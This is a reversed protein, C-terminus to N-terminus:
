RGGEENGDMYGINQIICSIQPRLHRMRSLVEASIHGNKPSGLCPPPIRQSGEPDAVASEIFLTNLELFVPQIKEHIRDIVHILARNISVLHPQIVTNYQQM